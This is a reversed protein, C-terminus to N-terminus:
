IQTIKEPYYHKAGTSFFLETKWVSDLLPLLKTKKWFYYHSIRHEM